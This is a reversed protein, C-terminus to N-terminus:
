SSPPRYVFIWTSSERGKGYGIEGERERQGRVKGGRGIGGKGQRGVRERGEKGEGEM